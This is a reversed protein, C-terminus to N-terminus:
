VSPEALKYDDYEILVKVASEVSKKKASEKKVSRGRELNDKDKKSIFPRTQM